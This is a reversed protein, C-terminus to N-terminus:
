QEAPGKILLEEVRQEVEGPGGDWRLIGERDVLLLRPLGTIGTADDWLQRQAEANPVFFQPWTLGLKKIADEARSRHQDFNVGVVEFGAAHRREYLAKLQPMKAMCPTCWTAWCDILVVKGKFNESRLPKGEETLAFPFPRGVQPRPLLEIGADRAKQFAETSAVEKEERRVERPVVEIGLCKVRDFPLRGPDLRFEDHALAVDRLPPTSTVGGEDSGFLFRTKKDDFAVPRYVREPEGNVIRSVTALNVVLAGHPDKKIFASIGGTSSMSSPLSGKPAWAWFCGRANPYEPALAVPTRGERPLVVRIRGPGEEFTGPRDHGFCVTLANGELRYIGHLTFGLTLSEMEITKPHATPDLKYRYVQSAFGEDDNTTITDATISWTFKYRKPPQAIGDLHYVIEDFMSWTGQIESRDAHDRSDTANGKPQQVPQAPASLRSAAALLGLGIAGSILLAAIATGPIVKAFIGRGRGRVLPGSHAARSSAAVAGAATVTSEALAAPVFARAKGTILGAGLFAAPVTLGRREFRGRLLERARALRGRVTGVPWGLHQAAQEHTLDQLYCLVIPARYKEPLRALEEHLAPEPFSVGRCDILRAGICAGLEEVQRRRAAERRARLAVRTAVGHLWSSLRRPERITGARRVLVLFTAQFADDADHPDDLIDRCVRLVMSGHRDVLVEFATDSADPAGDAFRALLESDSLGVGSGATWLSRLACTIEAPKRIAM